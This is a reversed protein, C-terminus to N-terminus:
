RFSGQWQYRFQGPGTEGGLQQLFQVLDQRHDAIDLRLDVDYADRLIIGSGRAHVDAPELSILNFEMGEGVGDKRPALKLRLAGFRENAGGTVAAQAWTISGKGNVPLHRDLELQDLDLEIVGDLYLLPLRRTIDVWKAPIRGQLGQLRQVKGNPSVTLTAGLEHEDSWGRVQWRTTRAGLDDVGDFRWELTGLQLGRWSLGEIRGHWITGSSQLWETGPLRAHVADLLWAAPLRWAAAALLLLPVLVIILWKRM